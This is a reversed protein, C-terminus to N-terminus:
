FSLNNVKKVKDIEANIFKMNKNLDLNNTEFNNDKILHYDIKKHFVEHLIQNEGIISDFINNKNDLNNKLVENSVCDIHNQLTTPQNNKSDTEDKM